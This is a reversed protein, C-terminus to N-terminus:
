HISQLGAVFREADIRTSEFLAPEVEALERYVDAAEQALALAEDRRGVEALSAALNNLSLALDPRYADPAVAVLERYLDVAEQAPALAEGRRGVEALRNALNNLSGALAPRYADPAVAALERRIDVTEQATALAEDWQGVEALRNALNNLSVALAPRYVDPSAEALERDLEAAEQATALAEGRRGVDGLSISLNNLSMALAPRYADPAVAALERRIDVAEQVPALAEDWQGVAALRIALNNLSMALDPRFADPSAEALERYLNVAEQVPALAEGRRGVEALTNSLNNLSTALDPRYADPSAEALERYLNVAEQVPALAEGRRGVEGLANSLNNLSTALDPRYADPSAAASERRIDVAEQALALAEDRRGVEALSAALNNLSMALDPRYADPSAEALERYLNVAEQAPALAEGRRGVEALRNALNNLAGALHPRYADPAVAVLERYLDAAEKGTALAEGRRGMTALRVALTNLSMALAPLYAIPSAAVLERRIDVAEQALELAEGWRGVDALRIALNNLAAALAPRDTTNVRLSDVIREAITVAVDALILSRDPLSAAIATLEDIDAAASARDLGTIIPTPREARAAVAIAARSAKLRGATVALTIVEDLHHAHVSAQGLLALAHTVQNQTATDLVDLVLAPSDNASLVKSVLRETVRDPQPRSWYGKDAEYLRNLWNAVTIQQDETLDRLGKVAGLVTTAEGEDAAGFLAAAAVARRQTTESLGTLGVAEAAKTWYRREHELLVDMPDVPSPQPDAAQLLAALADIHVGLVTRYREETLPPADLGAALTDWPQDTYGEVTALEAALAIVAEQWAERRGPPDPDVPALLRDPGTALFGAHISGVTLEERWAGASRALLLVRTRVATDQLAEALQSLQIRRNEAYDVVVLVPCTASAVSALRDAPANEALAVTAWGRAALLASVKRALRTKGQGGPGHVLLSALHADTDCWDLVVDVEPRDRFPMPAVDARLLAAPSDVRASRTTLDVFEVPELVPDGGVHEVWLRAFGEDAGFTAVPVAVLRDHAFGAPDVIVVGVLLGRSTLAAGSMGQWPSASSVVRAPPSDVAVSLWGAKVLSGPNVTGSAQETDRMEPTAVVNPFGTAVCRQGPERTVFRGLRARRRRTMPWAPDTVLLLAVDVVDDYRSWAVEADRLEPDGEIRVRVTPMPRGGICVVHAATLVLRGGVVYGSGCSWGSESPREAWVEVEGRM